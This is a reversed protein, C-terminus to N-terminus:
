VMFISTDLEFDVPAPLHLPKGLAVKKSARYAGEIIDSYVTVSPPEAVPDVMLYVPVGGTAYLEPKEKRDRMVSSPSVIEAVMIVGSSLLELDGWRPCDAPALVFDPQTPERPGEICLNVGAVAGRWGTRAMLPALALCLDTAMYGHEPSGLPSM